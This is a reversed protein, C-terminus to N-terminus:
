HGACGSGANPSWGPTHRKAQDYGTSGTGGDWGQKRASLAQRAAEDHRLYERVLVYDTWAPSGAEVVYLRFLTSAHRFRQELAGALDHDLEYGLSALAHRAPEELPFPWVALAIDICPQGLLGPVSTAGVHEVQEVIGGDTIEGLAGIVREHERAFQEKWHNNDTTREM